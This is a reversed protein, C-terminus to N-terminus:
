FFVVVGHWLMKKRKFNVCNSVWWRSRRRWSKNKASSAL